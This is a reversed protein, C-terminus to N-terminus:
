PTTSPFPIIIGKDSDSLCRELGLPLYISMSFKTQLLKRGYKSVIRICFYIRQLLALSTIMCTAGLTRSDYAYLKRFIIAHKFLM